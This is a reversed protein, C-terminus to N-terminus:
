EKNGIVHKTAKGISVKQMRSAFRLSSVTNPLNAEDSNICCLLLVKTDAELSDRLLHTLTSNRYPVSRDFQCRAQVVENFADISRNVFQSDEGEIRNTVDLEENLKAASNLIDSAAMDVFQLKGETGVGTAINMSSIHVTTIVTAKREHKIWNSGQGRLHDMRSAISEQFITAVDEFSNIPISVLGQVVTNGDINTRIELKGKTWNALNDRRDRTECVIVEGAEEASPIGAIRDFLKENHVEVITISFNDRYRETRHSAINFLQQIAQLQVGHSELNPLGNDEATFSVDGLLTHTKGSGSQGYALLTVNFGDLSSILPEELESFVECQSAGPSFIRDYQFSMPSTDENLVLIDHTPITLISKPPVSGPLYEIPKPRCYVRVTGRIDQLSNLLKLRMASEAALKERLHDAEATSAAVARSAQNSWEDSLQRLSLVEDRTTHRVFEFQRRLSTSQKQLEAIRDEVVENRPLLSESITSISQSGKGSEKPKSCSPDKQRRFNPRLRHPGKSKENSHFNRAFTSILILSRLLIFLVFSTRLM